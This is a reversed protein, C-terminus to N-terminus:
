KFKKNRDIIISKIYGNGLEIWEQNNKTNIAKSKVLRANISENSYPNALKGRPTTSKSNYTTKKFKM